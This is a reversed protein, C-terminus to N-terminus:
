CFNLHWWRVYGPWGLRPWIYQLVEPNPEPGETIQRNPDCFSVMYAGDIQSHPLVFLLYEKGVDLHQECVCCGLHTLTLRKKDPGKFTRTVAIDLRTVPYLAPLESKDGPFLLNRRSVFSPHEGIVLGTVVMASERTAQPVSPILGCQCAFIASQAVAMVVLCMGFLRSM